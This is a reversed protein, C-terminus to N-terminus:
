SMYGSDHLPQVTLSLGDCLSCMATMLAEMQMHSMYIVLLLTAVSSLGTRAFLGSLDQISCFLRCCVNFISERKTELTMYVDVETLGGSLM